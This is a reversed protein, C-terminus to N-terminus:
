LGHERLYEDMRIGVPTEPPVYDAPIRGIELKLGDYMPMMDAQRLGTLALVKTNDTIRHFLRAYELQWRVSLKKNPDLIALYDEKDVWVAELGVLERYYEAIEEWTRHEASCVNYCERKAEDRFLIRAIMKAVDGGWSLTAPKDKAQVPLIVKKGQLARAVCNKLELTVLQLRMTSFTTAPRVVTWNDYPSAYLFDEAKAKHICYDNSAKLEEDESSDWLRPSSERVPVEKDDYVRCSSLFIYHATNELFLSAYDSFPEKGYCMFNVIGDFGESLLSVLFDKDFADGKIHTLNEDTLLADDLSVGTVAYGLSLLEPVLYRGMAGTSGLVLVKKM